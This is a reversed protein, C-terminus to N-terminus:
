IPTCLHIHLHFSGQFAVYIGWHLKIGYGAPDIEANINVTLDASITVYYFDDAPLNFHLWVQSMVVHYFNFPIEGSLSSSLNSNKNNNDFYATSDSTLINLLNTSLQGSNSAKVYDIYYPMTSRNGIHADYQIFKNGYDPLLSGITVNLDTVQSYSSITNAYISTSYFVMILILIVNILMKKM